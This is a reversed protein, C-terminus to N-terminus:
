TDYNAFHSVRIPTQYYAHVSAPSTFSAMRSM